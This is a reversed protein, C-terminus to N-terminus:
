NGGIERQRPGKEQWDASILQPWHVPAAPHNEPPPQRRPREPLAVGELKPPARHFLSVLLESVTLPLLPLGQSLLPTHVHAHYPTNM